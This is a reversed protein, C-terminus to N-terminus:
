KGRARLTVQSVIKREMESTISFKFRIETGIHGCYNKIDVSHDSISELTISPQASLEHDLVGDRRGSFLLRISTMTGGVRGNATPLLWKLSKHAQGPLAEDLGDVIILCTRFHELSTMVLSELKRTSRLNVGDISALDDFLHDLLTPDRTIVQEVMAKMFSNHTQKDSQNHKFYFYAVLTDCNNGEVCIDKLLGEIVSSM